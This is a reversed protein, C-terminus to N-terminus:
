ILNSVWANKQSNHLCNELVPFTNTLMGTMANISSGGIFFFSDSLKPKDDSDTIGVVQGTFLMLAKKKSEIKKM